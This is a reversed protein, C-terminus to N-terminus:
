ILDSRKNFLSLSLVWQGKQLEAEPVNWSWWCNWGRYSKEELESLSGRRKVVWRKTSGLSLNVPEVILSSVGKRLCFSLMM